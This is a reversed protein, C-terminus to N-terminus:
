LISATLSLLLSNSVQWEDVVLPYKLARFAYDLSAWGTLKVGLLFEYEQNLLDIGSLSTDANNYFPMMLAARASYSLNEALAGTAKLELEAGVQVSDQMQKLTVVGDKDSDVTWGERTFVEWAGAGLKGILDITKKELPHAFVGASERLVAPAFAQTLDIEENAAFPEDAGIAAGASDVKQLTGAAPKVLYGALVPTQLRVSAFPGLWPLAGIRYMYTSTFDLADTSKFFRDLVPTRTYGLQWKLLNEWEHGAEHLWNLGGNLVLGLAWTAGDTAGVVNSSHNFAATGTATLMPHWGPQKQDTKVAVEDPVYDPEEGRVPAATSLVSVVSALVVGFRYFRM